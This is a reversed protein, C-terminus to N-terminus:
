KDTYQSVVSLPAFYYPKALRKRHLLFGIVVFLCISLSLFVFNKLCFSLFFM